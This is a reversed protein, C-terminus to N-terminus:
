RPEHFRSMCVDFRRHHRHALVGASHAPRCELHLTVASLALPTIQNPVLCSKRTEM